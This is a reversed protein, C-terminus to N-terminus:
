RPFYWPTMPESTAVNDAFNSDPLECAVQISLRAGALNTSGHGGEWKFRKVVSARGRVRFPRWHGSSWRQPVEPLAAGSGPAFAVHGYATRAKGRSANSIRVRATVRYRGGGFHVARPIGVWRVRLDPLPAPNADALDVRLVFGNGLAYAVTGDPAVALDWIRSPRRDPKTWVIAGPDAPDITQIRIGSATFQSSSALVWRDARTAVALFGPPDFWPEGYYHSSHAFYKFMELGGPFGAAETRWAYGDGSFTPDPAGDPLRRKVVAGDLAVIRGAGDIAVESAAFSDQFTL